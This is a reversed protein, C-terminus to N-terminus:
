RDDDVEAVSHVKSVVRVPVVINVAFQDDDVQREITGSFAREVLFDILTTGFGGNQQSSSPAPRQGGRELWEVVFEKEDASWRLTVVGGPVAWAGYKTCNTALEHFILGFSQAASQSILFEDGDLQIQEDRTIFPSLQTRALLEFPAAEVTRNTIIDISRGLATLRRTLDDKLQTVDSAGHASLRLLSITIALQNKARHATERLLLALEQDKALKVEATRRLAAMVDNIERIPSSLKPPPLGADIANAVKATDAISRSILYGIVLAAGIVLGSWLLLFSFPENMGAISGSPRRAWVCVRWDSLTVSRQLLYLRPANAGSTGALSSCDNRTGAAEDSLRPSPYVLQGDGDLVAVNWDGSAHGRTLVAGLDTADRTLILGRREGNPLESRAIVNYVPINAVGGRFLNSVSPTGTEMVRPLTVQDSSKGLPTDFPVRTNLLQQGTEDVVILYRETGRLAEQARAHLREYLGAGLWGSSGFIALMTQASQFESSLRHAIEGTLDAGSRLVIETRERERANVYLILATVAPALFALAMIVM